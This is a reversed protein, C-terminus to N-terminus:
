ISFFETINSPKMTEGAKKGQKERGENHRKISSVKKVEEERSGANYRLV